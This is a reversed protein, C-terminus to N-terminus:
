YGTRYARPLGVFRAMLRESGFIVKQSFEINM